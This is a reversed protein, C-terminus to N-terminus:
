TLGTFSAQDLTSVVVRISKRDEACEEWDVDIFGVQRVGGSQEYLLKYEMTGSLYRLVHKAAIWHVRKPDVM